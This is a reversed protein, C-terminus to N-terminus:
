IILRDIPQEESCLGMGIFTSLSSAEAEAGGDTGDTVPTWDIMQKEGMALLHPFRRACCFCILGQIADKAMANTYERLCRRDIAYAAVPASDQCKRSIAANYIAWWSDDGKDQLEIMGRAVDLAPAHSTKLHTLLSAESAGKWTCHKFACHLSPLSMAMDERLAEEHAQLANSPDAPVTPKPRLHSSLEGIAAELKSRPDLSSDMVNVHFYGLCRADDVKLSEGGVEAGTHTQVYVAKTSDESQQARDQHPAQLADRAALLASRESACTMSLNQQLEVDTVELLTAGDIKDKKFRGCWHGLQHRHLWSCVDRPTWQSVCDPLAAPPPPPLASSASDGTPSEPHSPQLADRAALLTSRESACTMCLEKQLEVETLKLLTAGDIHEGKFRRCWHGLQHRHLWFCVDRPTWQRVCEPLAAPAPPPPAARAGDESSSLQNPSQLADRATLFAFRENVSTM